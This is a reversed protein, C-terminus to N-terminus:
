TSLAVLKNMAKEKIEKGKRVLECHLIFVTKAMEKAIVFLPYTFGLGGAGVGLMLLVAGIGNAANFFTGVIGAIGIAAAAASILFLVAVFFWIVAILLVFLIAASLAILALGPSAIILVAKNINM